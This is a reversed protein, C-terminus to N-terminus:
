NALWPENPFKAKLYEYRDMSQGTAENFLPTGGPYVTDTPDGYQNLQQATLWADAKALNASADNAPAQTPAAPVSPLVRRAEQDRIAKLTVSNTNTAFYQDVLEPAFRKFGVGYGTLIGIAFSILAVSWLYAYKDLTSQQAMPPPPTVSLASPMVPPRSAAHIENVKGAHYGTARHQKM